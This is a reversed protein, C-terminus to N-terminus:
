PSVHAIPGRERRGLWAWVLLATAALALAGAAGGVLPPWGPGVLWVPHRRIDFFLRGVRFVAVWAAHIGTSPWLSGTRLRVQALLLGLAFLGAVGPWVLPDGLPAFLGAAREWGALPGLVIGKGGSRLAHVIAYLLTTVLVGGRPGLDLVFRRLLIGRFLAEEGGGVVIAAAVGLLAKWV